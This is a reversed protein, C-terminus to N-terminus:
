RPSVSSPGDLSRCRRVIPTRLGPDTVLTGAFGTRHGPRHAAPRRRVRAGLRNWQTFTAWRATPYGRDIAAFQLAIVNGGNYRNGTVAKVPWGTATLARWPMEWRDAGAEIAAVLRSVVDDIVITTTTM